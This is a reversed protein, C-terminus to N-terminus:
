WDKGSSRQNTRSELLKRQEELEQSQVAQLIQMAQEKSIASSNSERDDPRIQDNKGSKSPNTNKKGTDGQKQNKDPSKQEQAKVKKLALELNHKADMDAPNLRLAQIFAQASDRYNGMLFLANGTNFWSSEKIADNGKSMSQRLAQIGQECKNQKILSNGLNYLIEPRGPSNVQADLYAREADEYKGQAFLRNGERNKSALSEAELNSLATLILFVTWAPLWRCAAFTYRGPLKRVESHRGGVASKFAIQQAM